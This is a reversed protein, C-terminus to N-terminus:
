RGFWGFLFGLSFNVSSVDSNSIDEDNLGTVLRYGVAGNVKFWKTINVEVEGQPNLVLVNDDALLRNSLFSSSSRRLEVNGWGLKVSGGFHILEQPQHIYGIWLGGHGFRLRTEDADTQIRNSVGLGYGGAFFRNNLLVAGGGGNSVALEGQISSFEVIPGGFGSVKVDGSLLYQIGGDNQAQTFLCSMMLLLLLSHKKMAQKREVVFGRLFPQWFSQLIKALIKFLKIV